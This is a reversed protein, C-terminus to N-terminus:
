SAVFPPFPAPPPCCSRSGLKRDWDKLTLTKQLRPLALLLRALLDAGVKEVESERESARERETKEARVRVRESERFSTREEEEEEGRAM